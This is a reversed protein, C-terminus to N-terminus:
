DYRRLGKGQYNQPPDIIEDLTYSSPNCFDIPTCFSEGALNGFWTGFQNDIFGVKYWQTVDCIKVGVSTFGLSFTIQEPKAANPLEGYKKWVKECSESDILGNSISVHYPINGWPIALMCLYGYSSDINKYFSLMEVLKTDFNSQPFIYDDECFIYYDFQQRYIGYVYSLAGYSMGINERQLVVVETDRLKPPISDIADLFNSPSEPYENIVFTIQSLDYPVINLEQIITKINVTNDLAYKRHHSARPGCYLPVVLNINTKMGEITRRLAARGNQSPVM